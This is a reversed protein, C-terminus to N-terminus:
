RWPFEDPLPRGKVEKRTLSACRRIREKIESMNNGMLRIILGADNPLSSISLSTGTRYFPEIQAYVADRHRPPTLILLTAFIEYHAMVGTAQPSRQCPRIQLKDRFLIANATDGLRRAECSIDLMDYSFLEGQRLKGRYHRRGCSYIESYVLTADAHIDIETISLYRSHLSPYTPEPLYEMYANEELRIRQRLAAHDRSMEAIKTAAGTSVHAMAGRRLIIEQRLRDGEVYPGGSALIYVCPLLPLEKDFYLEQQVILPTRRYLRGLYSRGKENSLFEMYLEGTM